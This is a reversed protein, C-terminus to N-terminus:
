GFSIDPFTLMHLTLDSLSTATQAAGEQGPEHLCLWLWTRTQSSSSRFSCSTGTPGWSCCTQECSPPLRACTWGVWLVTGDWCSFFAQLTWVLGSGKRPGPGPAPWTWTCAEQFLLLHHQQKLAEIKELYLVILDNDPSLLMLLFSQLCSHFSVTVPPPFSSVSQDLPCSDMDRESVAASLSSSESQTQFM